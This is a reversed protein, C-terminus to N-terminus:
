ETETLIAGSTLREIEADNAKIKEAQEAIVREYQACIKQVESLFGTIELVGNSLFENITVRKEGAM